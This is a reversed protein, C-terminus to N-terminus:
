PHQFTLAMPLAQQPKCMKEQLRQEFEETELRIVHDMKSHIHALEKLYDPVAPSYYDKANIIESILQSQIFGLAPSQGAQNIGRRVIELIYVKFSENLRASVIVSSLIRGMAKTARLPIFLHQRDDEKGAAIYQADDIWHMTITTIQYILYHFPTPFEHSEDNPQPARLRALIKDTFHTFYFLWLDDKLQQHNAEHIMIQFFQLSCYVPCKYKGVDDYRGLPENYATALDPDSDLRQLVAEGVSRYVAHKEAMGVDKLYFSLLKNAPAPPTRYTGSTGTNNKLETYFVSSDDNILAQFFLDGFDSRLSRQHSLIKLCLYPHSIALYTALHPSNLLRQLIHNAAEEPATDPQVLGALWNRFRRILRTLAHEPAQATDRPIRSFDVQLAPRILRALKGQHTPQEAIIFVSEVHSDLLLALRDYSKTLLLSDFLREFTNINRRALTAKRSRAYVYGSLALLLLYIASSSTFNWLWPGFSFYLGLAGLIPEFALYHILTLTLVILMWDVLSLSLRFALKTTAPILAWVAAILGLITLLSSTDITSGTVDPM